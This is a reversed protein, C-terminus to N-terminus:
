FGDDQTSERFCSLQYARFEAAASSSLTPSSVRAVVVSYSRFPWTTDDVLTSPWATGFLSTLASSPPTFGPVSNGKAYMCQSYAIDYQQQLVARDRDAADSGVEAGRVLGKAAMMAVPNSHDHRGGHHHHYDGMLAGAAAGLLAGFLAGGLMDDQTAKNPDIGLQKTAYDRCANNDAKFAELSKAPSPMVAVTPGMRATACAALTICLMWSVVLRVFSM